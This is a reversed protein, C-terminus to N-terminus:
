SQRRLRALATQVRALDKRVERVKRVASQQTALHFRGERLQGRLEALLRLLENLNKAQLEKFEM